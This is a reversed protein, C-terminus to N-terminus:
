RPIRAQNQDGFEASTEVSLTVKASQNPFAESINNIFESLSGMSIGFAQAWNKMNRRKKDITDVDDGVKPWLLYIRVPLTNERGEVRCRLCHNNSKESDAERLTPLASTCTIVYDGEPAATLEPVDELNDDLLSEPITSLDLESM